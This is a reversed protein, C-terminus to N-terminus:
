KYWEKLLMNRSEGETFFVEGKETDFRITRRKTGGLSKASIKIKLDNLITLVSQINSDCITDDKKKLVNGAGVLCVRVNNTNGKDLQLLQLIKDIADVAYKTKYQTEKEPAKGPLMIHALAGTHKSLDIAAVAICSGLGYSVLVSNADGIKVEGTAVNIIEKM